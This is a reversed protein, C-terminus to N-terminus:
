RPLQFRNAPLGHVKTEIAFLGGALPNQEDGIAASTVFLTSGEAGGFVCTTPNKLPLKVVRDVIGDPSLRLVCGGGHRCNWLYGEADMASGDPLGFKEESEGQFWLREGDLAGDANMEFRCIADALTDATYLYRGDPSWAVTNGIGLGRRHSVAHGAADLSFLEGLKETVELPEGDRGVNNQM